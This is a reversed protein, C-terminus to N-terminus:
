NSNISSNNISSHLNRLSSLLHIFLGFFWYNIFHILIWNILILLIRKWFIWFQFNVELKKASNFIINRRFQSLLLSRFFRFYLRLSKFIINNIILRLDNFELRKKFYFSTAQLQIFIITSLRLFNMTVITFSKGNQPVNLCKVIVNQLNHNWGRKSQLVRILYKSIWVTQLSFTLNISNHWIHQILM